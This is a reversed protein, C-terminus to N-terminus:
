VFSKYTDSDQTANWKNFFTPLLLAKYEPTNLANGAADIVAVLSDYLLPFMSHHASNYVQLLTNIIDPLFPLPKEYTEAM